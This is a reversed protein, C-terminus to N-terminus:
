QGGMGIRALMATFATAIALKTESDLAPSIWLEGKNDTRVWAVVEGESLLNYHFNMKHMMQEGLTTTNNGSVIFEKGNYGKLLGCERDSEGKTPNLYLKWNNNSQDTMDCVFSAKGTMDMGIFERVANLQQKDPNDTAKVDMTSSNDSVSFSYKMNTVGSMESGNISFSSSVSVAKIKTSAYNGFSIKRNLLSNTIGTVKLMEDENQPASSYANFSTALLLACAALTLFLKKMKKIM